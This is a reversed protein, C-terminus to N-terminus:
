TMRYLILSTQTLERLRIFEEVVEKQNISDLATTPEDAIIIDPKMALAIAIMCRQLMGGSIQHPYKLIVQEPERILMKELSSIALNKAEEKSLGLNEVFTEIM